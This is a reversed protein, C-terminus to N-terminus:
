VEQFIQLLETEENIRIPNYQFVRLAPLSLKWDTSLIESSIVSHILSKSDNDLFAEARKHTMSSSDGTSDDTVDLKLPYRERIFEFRHSKSAPKFTACIPPHASPRFDRSRPFSSSFTISMDADKFRVSTEEEERSSSNRQINWRVAKKRELYTNLSKKFDQKKRNKKRRSMSLLPSSLKERIVARRYITASIHRPISFNFLPSVHFYRFHLYSIFLPIQLKKVIKLLSCFINLSSWPQTLSLYKQVACRTNNVQRCILTIYANAFNSIKNLTYEVNRTQLKKKIM